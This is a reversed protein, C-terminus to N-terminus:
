SMHKYDQDLNPLSQGIVPFRHATLRACDLLQLGIFFGEESFHRHNAEPRWLCTYVHVHAGECMCMHVCMYM